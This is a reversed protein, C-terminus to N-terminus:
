KFDLTWTNPIYLSQTQRARRPTTNLADVSKRSSCVVDGVFRLCDSCVDKLICGQAYIHPFEMEVRSGQLGQLSRPHSLVTLSTGTGADASDQARIAVEPEWTM